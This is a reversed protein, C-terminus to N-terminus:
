NWNIRVSHFDGRTAYDRMKAYFNVCTEESSISFVGLSFYLTRRECFAKYISVCLLKWFFMFPNTKCVGLSKKAVRVHTLTKWDFVSKELLIIQDHGDM